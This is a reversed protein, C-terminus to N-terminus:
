LSLPPGVIFKGLAGLTINTISNSGWVNGDFIFTPTIGTNPSNAVFKADNTFGHTTNHTVYLIDSNNTDTITANIAFTGAPQNM